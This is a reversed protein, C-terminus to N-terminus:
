FGLSGRAGINEKDFWSTAMSTNQKTGSYFIQWVEVEYGPLYSDEKTYKYSNRLLTM